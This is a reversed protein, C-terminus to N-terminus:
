EKFKVRRGGMSRSYPMLKAEDKPNTGSTDFNM